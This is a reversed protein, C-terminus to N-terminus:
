RREVSAIAKVIERPRVWPIMHGGEVEVLRANPLEKAIVGGFRPKVSSDSRGQLVIAPVRITKLSRNLEIRDAEFNLIERQYADLDDDKLNYTLLQTKYAPVVDDPAFATSVQPSATGRLVLNSAFVDLAQEIVPLHTVQIIRASARDTFGPRTGGAAAAVLVLRGVAHRNRDAMALAVAGGYSHGVITPERLKLKRAFEAVLKAQGYIEGADGTSEGFGPRDISVWHRDKLLSGVRDFDSSVGPLGHIFIIPAGKGNGKHEVYHLRVGDGMDVFKGAPPPEDPLPFVALNLVALMSLVVAAILLKPIRLM